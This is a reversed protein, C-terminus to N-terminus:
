GYAAGQKTWEDVLVEAAHRSAACSPAASGHTRVGEEYEGAAPLVAGVAALTVDLTKGRLRM